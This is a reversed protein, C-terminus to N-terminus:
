RKPTTIPLSSFYPQIKKTKKNIYESDQLLQSTQTHFKIRDLFSFIRM